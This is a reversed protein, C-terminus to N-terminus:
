PRRVSQSGSWRLRQWSEVAHGDLVSPNLRASAMVCHVLAADRSDSGSGAIIRGDSVRGDAEVRVVVELERSQVTARPRPMTGAGCIRLVQATDAPAADLIAGDPEPEAPPLTPAALVTILPKLNVSTGLDVGVGPIGSHLPGSVASLLLLPQQTRSSDRNFGSRALALVVAVHVVLVGLAIRRHSISPRGAAGAGPLSGLGGM